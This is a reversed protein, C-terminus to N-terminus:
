DWGLRQAAGLLVVVPIPSSGHCTDLDAAYEQVLEM